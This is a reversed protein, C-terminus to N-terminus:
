FATAGNRNWLYRLLTKWNLLLHLVSFIAVMFCSITHVGAWEEKDLGLLHWSTINGV